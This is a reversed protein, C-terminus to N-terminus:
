CGTSFCHQPFASEAHASQSQAIPTQSRDNRGITLPTPVRRSRRWRETHARAELTPVRNKGTEIGIVGDVGETPYHQVGHGDIPVALRRESQRSPAAQGAIRLDEDLWVTGRRTQAEEPQNSLGCPADHARRYPQTKSEIGRTAHRWSRSMLHYILWCRLGQGCRGDPRIPQTSLRDAEALWEQRTGAETM